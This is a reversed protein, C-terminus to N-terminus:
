KHLAENARTMNQGAAAREALLRRAHRVYWDNKHLQLEVLEADTKKALDLGDLRKAKGYLAKYIRGSSRHVGDNDHCEGLDCWDSIFVGGDPGYILDIGRFWPNDAPLIDPGHKAVYSAGRRLLVDGNLRNGHLNCMYIKHRYADPWNDGLYVMAGVHAHGGGAESHSGQGGRSSTWHGGGWHLHDSTSPILEYAYPNFDLGYMRQYHAGPVVHWLHGIVCNTFFAEGHDDFDLGWPNTTGHAIAEFIKKTPHYRWIGCNLRVRGKAGDGGQPSPPTHPTGPPGVLSDAVIGHRGWLWGDPGWALGNVINHRAQLTWGDLVIRPPGDAVGDGDRDPIFLLHPACRAWIGGHGPTISTLNYAKDWFVTRKDFRGDNDTDEFVVIRDTGSQLQDATLWKDYSFCEAVWLRGREDFAMAIPQCVDPEGAFLSVRFGEPPKFRLVAEAPTPPADKPDQTNKVGPPLGQQSFVVGALGLAVFALACARMPNM